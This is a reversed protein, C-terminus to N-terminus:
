IPVVVASRIRLPLKVNFLRCARIYIYLRLLIPILYLNLKLDTYKEPIFDKELLLVYIDGVQAM